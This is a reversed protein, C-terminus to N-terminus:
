IAALMRDSVHRVHRSCSTMPKRALQPFGRAALARNATAIRQSVASQTIGLMEAIDSQDMGQVFYLVCAERQPESLITVATRDM